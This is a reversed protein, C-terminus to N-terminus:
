ARPATALWDSFRPLRFSLLSQAKTSDLSCDAARPPGPFDRLSAPQMCCKLEPWQAALLQGIQLRNLRDAGAVHFIGSHENLTPPTVGQAGDAPSDRLPACPTVRGVKNLTTDISQGALALEWVARATVGAGIPNRFEDTFLKLTEGRRWAAHTQEAFSRDGTPSTGANLSTRLVINRPCALVVREAEVKTEAYLNLPNVADTEAYNGQRGDFVLDTSLLILRTAACLETLTRTVEVNVQRAIDPHKACAAATSIAACHIVLAPSDARFRRELAASDLLDLENRTLGIIHHGQPANPAHLLANGILGGAGTVWVVPKNRPETL